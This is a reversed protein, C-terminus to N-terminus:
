SVSITAAPDVNKVGCEAKRSGETGTPRGAREDISSRAMQRNPQDGDTAPTRTEESRASAATRATGAAMQHVAVCPGSADTDSSSPPETTTTRGRPQDTSQDNCRDTCKGTEDTRDTRSPTARREAGRPKRDGPVASGPTITAPVSRRM